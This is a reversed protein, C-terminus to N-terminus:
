STVAKDTQHVGAAKRLDKRRNIWMLAEELKTIACATERTRMPHGHSQYVSLNDILGQIIDTTFCGNVGVEDPHGFQLHITGGENPLDIYSGPHPYGKQKTAEYADVFPPDKKEPRRM